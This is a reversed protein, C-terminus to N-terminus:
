DHFLRAAVCLVSFFEVASLFIIRGIANGPVQESFSACAYTSTSSWGFEVGLNLVSLM